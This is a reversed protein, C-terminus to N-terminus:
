YSTMAWVELGNNIARQMLAARLNPTSHLLAWTSEVENATSPLYSDCGWTLSPIAGIGMVM